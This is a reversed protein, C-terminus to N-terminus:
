RGKTMVYTHVYYTLSPMAYEHSVGRVRSSSTSYYFGRKDVGHWAVSRWAVQNLDSAQGM